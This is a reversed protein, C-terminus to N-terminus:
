IYEPGVPEEQTYESDVAEEQTYESDVPEVQTCAVSDVPELLTSHHFHILSDVVTGMDKGTVVKSNDM